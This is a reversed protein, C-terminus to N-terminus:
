QRVNKCKLQCIELPETDFAKVLANWIPDELVARLGRVKVNLRDLNHQVFENSHYGSNFWPCPFLLGDVNVFIEKEFNLCKAWAHNRILPADVVKSSRTFVNKERQYQSSSAVKIPKLPDQGNILYRGDFKSSHVTDFTDFGLDQATQKIRAVQNENFNFYIMSWNMICPSAARLTKIGEVISNWDSNVRYKQNSEQDWGDLSFTVQDKSDLFKGLTDWWQVNKYSGNTVINITTNSNKKIYEVINLFDKAYIPDGVDGCFIIKSVASLTAVDFARAFDTLSFERNLHDLALETRPCRPCKLTCKSSVEVHINRTSFM